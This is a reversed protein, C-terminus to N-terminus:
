TTYYDSGTSWPICEQEGRVSYLNKNSAYPM